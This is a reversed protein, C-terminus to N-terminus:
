GKWGKGKCAESAGEGRAAHREVLEEGVALVPTHVTPVLAPQTPLGEKVVLSIKVLSFKTPLPCHVALGRISQTTAHNELRLVKPLVAPSFPCYNFHSRSVPSESPALILTVGLFPNNPLRQHVKRPVEAALSVVAGVYMFLVFVEKRSAESM